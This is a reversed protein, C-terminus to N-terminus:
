VRARLNGGQLFVLMVPHENDIMPEYYFPPPAIPPDELFIVKCRL